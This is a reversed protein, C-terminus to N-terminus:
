EYEDKGEWSIAQGCRPCFDERQYLEEGCTPCGDTVNKVRVKVMKTKKRKTKEVAERCEEVTGIAKYLELEEVCEEFTRGTKEELDEYRSLKEIADGEAFTMFGFEVRVKFGRNLIDRGDELKETFRKM